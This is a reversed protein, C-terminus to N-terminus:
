ILCNLSMLLYVFLNILLNITFITKKEIEFIEPMLSERYFEDSYLPYGLFNFLNKTAENNLCNFSLKNANLFSMFLKLFKISYFEGNNFRNESSLRIEM